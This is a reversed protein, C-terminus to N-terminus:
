GIDRQDVGFARIASWAAQRAQESGTVALLFPDREIALLLGAERATVTATRPTAVMLAIEGFGGGREIRRIHQDDIAVDFSGDAVAYYHNGPDGERVVVDGDAVAVEVATRAVTELAIPPLPAFVPLRRLLSIAVVPVDASDDALRLSRWTIVLLAAFMAGLAILLTTVGNAAIIIQATISGLILGIGALLEINAFLAGLATPPVSRQLLMRTTLNLTSRAFGAIVLWALAVAVRPWLGISAMSVALLGMSVALMWALRRRHAAVTSGVASLLAGVGFSTALLGPGSIGLHLVENALVVLSVDYAGLLVNQSASVILVGRAGPRQGLDRVSDLMLRYPGVPAHTPLAHPAPETDLSSMVGLAAFVNLVSCGALVMPAGDLSLLATALLPGALSCVSECYGIWLNAVTLERASRVMTPTLVATAPRVYTHAAIAIATLGIVVAVSGSGFGAIAALALAVSEVVFAAVCIRGPRFRQAAAGAYPAVLAYPILLGLSAFGTVRAGGREYAFVLAGVFIAWESITSSLYGLSFRVLRVNRLAARQPGLARSM